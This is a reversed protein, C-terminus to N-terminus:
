ANDVQYGLETIVSRITELELSTEDFEVKTRGRSFSTSARKVGPLDELADDVNVACSACHMGAIQLKAKTM